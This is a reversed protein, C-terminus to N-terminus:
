RAPKLAKKADTERPELFRFTTLLCNTSLTPTDGKGKALTVKIDTVNM